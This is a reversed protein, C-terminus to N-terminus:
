ELAAVRLELTELSSRLEDVEKRTALHSIVSSHDYIKNPYSLFSM